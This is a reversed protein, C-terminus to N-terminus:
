KIIVFEVRRNKARAEEIHRTDIPRTEGFGKETLREKGIGKTVLYDRVAKARRISLGMNYEETGIECAHGQIELKLGPNQALTLALKDLSEKAGKSLTSKDFDFQIRLSAIEELSLGGEPVVFTPSLSFNVEVTEGKGVTVEKTVPAYGYSEVELKYTGPEAKITYNGDIDTTVPEIGPITISAQIAEGTEKDTVKGRVTAKEPSLAFSLDITEGPKLAVTKTMTEYGDASASIEIEEGALSSEFKGYEDTEIAKLETGPFSIYAPLPGGTEADVVEGKVITKEVPPKGITYKAGLNVAWPQRKGPGATVYYDNRWDAPYEGGFYEESVGSVDVDVALLLSLNPNPNFSVGPTIYAWDPGFIAANDSELGGRDEGTFEVFPQFKGLDYCAGLQGIFQDANDPDRKASHYIYAGSGTLRVNGVKYSLAARVGFDVGGTTFYRFRGEGDDPGVVGKGSGTLLFPEIAFIDTIALNYKLCIGIDGLGNERNDWNPELDWLYPAWLGVALNDLIGYGIGLVVRGGNYADTAGEPTYTFGRALLGIDFNGKPIRTTPEVRLFGTYGRVMTAALLICMGASWIKRMGGGKKVDLDFGEKVWGEGL